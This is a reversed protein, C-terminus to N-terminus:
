MASGFNLPFGTGSGALRHTTECVDGGSGYLSFFIARGMIPRV